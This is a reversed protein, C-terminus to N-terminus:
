WAGPSCSKKVTYKKRDNARPKGHYMGLYFYGIYKELDIYLVIKMERVKAHTIKTYLKNYHIHTHKHFM